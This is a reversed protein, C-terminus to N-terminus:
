SGGRAEELARVRVELDTAEIARVYTDVLKTLEGAEAPTLDGVAVADAIAAMAKAADAAELMPPLGFSVPRDRRPPVIRDLVIRLATM